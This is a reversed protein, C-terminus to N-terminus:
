CPLPERELTARVEDPLHEFDQRQQQRRAGELFRGLPQFGNDGRARARAPAADAAVVDQEPYPVPVPTSQTTESEIRVGPSREGPTRGSRLHKMRERDAERRALVDARSPQYALYDHIEFGGPEALWRKAGCLAEASSRWQKLHILAAVALVDDHTLHGDRLNAASFIIGAMDLAIAATPLGAIKRSGLYSDDFRAWPMVRAM